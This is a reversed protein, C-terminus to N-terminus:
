IVPISGDGGDLVPCFFPLLRHTFHWGAFSFILTATQTNYLSIEGAEYDLYVGVENPMPANLRVPPDTLAYLAYNSFWVTWYGNQPCLKANGRRWMTEKALGLAWPTAGSIKVEYYIRGTCFKQMGLVYVGKDFRASLSNAVPDFGPLVAPHAAALDLTMDVTYRRIRALQARRQAYVEQNLVEELPAREQHSQLCTSYNQVSVCFCQPPNRRQMMRDELHDVPPILRLSQPGPAQPHPELTECQPDSQRFEATLESIVTNKDADPRSDYLRQCLPCVFRANMDWHQTICAKCFSHGCPISVPDTFIDLCISCLFQAESLHCTRKLHSM